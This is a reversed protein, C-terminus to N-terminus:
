ERTGASGASPLYVDFRTNPMEIRFNAELDGLPGAAKPRKVVVRRRAFRLATQLVDHADTDDGVLERLMQMEKAPLASKDRSPYMPDLYVVDTPPTGPNRMLRAAEGMWLVLRESIWARAPKARQLADELLAAIIPSREVLIVRCGLAALLVGDQGLGATADLISPRRGGSLGAAQALPESRKTAHRLRYGLPGALYDIRLEQRRQPSQLSLGDAGVALIFAYSEAPMRMPLGLRQALALAQAQKGDEQAEVAVIQRQAGPTSKPHPETKRYKTM